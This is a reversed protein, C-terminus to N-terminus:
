RIIGPPSPNFLGNKAAKYANLETQQKSVHKPILRGTIWFYSVIIAFCIIAIGVMTKLKM